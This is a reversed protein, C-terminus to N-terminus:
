KDALAATETLEMQLAAEFTVRPRRRRHHATPNMRPTTPLMLLNLYSWSTRSPRRRTPSTSVRTQTGFSSRVAAVTGFFLLLNHLLVFGRVHPVFGMVLNVKDLITAEMPRFVLSAKSDM